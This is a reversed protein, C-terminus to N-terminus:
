DIIRDAMHAYHLRQKRPRPIDYSIVRQPTKKESGYVSITAAILFPIQLASATRKQLTMTLRM